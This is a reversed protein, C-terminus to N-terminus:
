AEWSATVSAQEGCAGCLGGEGLPAECVPCPPAPREARAHELLHGCAALLATPDHTDLYALLADRVQLADDNLPREHLLGLLAVDPVTGGLVGTIAEWYAAAHTGTLVQPNWRAERAARFAASTQELARQLDELAAAESKRPNLLDAISERLGLIATDIDALLTVREDAAMIVSHRQERWWMELRPLVLELTDQVPQKWLARDVQRASELGLELDPGIVPIEYTTHREALREHDRRDWELFQSVIEDGGHARRMGAELTARDRMEAAATRLASIGTELPARVEEHLRDAAGRIMAEVNDLWKEFVPLRARVAEHSGRNCLAAACALLLDNLAAHPSYHAREREQRVREMGDIAAYLPPILANLSPDPAALAQEIENWCCTINALAAAEADDITFGSHFEIWRRASVVLMEFAQLAEQSPTERHHLANLYPIAVPPLHVIEM